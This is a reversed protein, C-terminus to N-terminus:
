VFFFVVVVFFLANAIVHGLIFGIVFSSYQRYIAVSYMLAGLIIAFLNMTLFMSMATEVDQAIRYRNFSCYVTYSM